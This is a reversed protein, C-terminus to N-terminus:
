RNGEAFDKFLQHFKMTEKQFGKKGLLLAVLKMMGAFRFETASQWKTTGNGLDIFTNKQQNFVGGAEYTATFATPLNHELVTETMLMQGKKGRKYVLQAKTGVKGEEGEILTRSLLTPQWKKLNDPNEFLEVVRDVPLNIEIETTYEM